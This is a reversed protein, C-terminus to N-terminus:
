KDVHGVVISVMELVVFGPPIIGQLIGDVNTWGCGLALGAGAPQLLGLVSKDGVGRLAHVGDVVNEKVGAACVSAQVSSAFRVCDTVDDVDDLLQLSCLYM